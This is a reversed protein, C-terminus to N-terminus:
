LLGVQQKMTVSFERVCEVLNLYRLPPVLTEGLWALYKLVSLDSTIEQRVGPHLVKIAIPILNEDSNLLLFKSIHFFGIDLRINASVTIQRYKNTTYYRSLMIATFDIINYVKVFARPM